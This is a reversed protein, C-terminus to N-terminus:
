RRLLKIVKHLGAVLADTDENSNYVYYSARTSAPIGFRRHLPAACHQGARVCIGEEDLIAAIDHPHIDEFWFAVAGGHKEAAPGLLHLGPVASLEALAYTVLQLEHQRVNEMGLETLFDIAAGLAIAEAIAPTGAEFKYPLENWTSREKRVSLIMDGGFLFPPMAALLARRGWLAGIGPGGLKHGSFAMFDADLSQVDVPLHPVAQAGDLVVVVGAAHALHIIEALDPITGLVNSMMSLALVKARGDALLPPLAALDLEGAGTVPIFSLEADQEQALWQWPVLNSHHELETVIIREGAGVNSRGWSYVVLNLGETANRVFIVEDTSAANIFKAIKARAAEYQRTAEEALRYIGRHINAYNTSYVSSLADIVVQPKQASAASDLYILRKGNIKQQLIPFQQRVEKGSWTM